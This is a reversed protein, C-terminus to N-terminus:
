LKNLSCPLKQTEKAGELPKENATVFSFPERANRTFSDSLLGKRVMNAKAGSDVLISISKRTGDSSIVSVEMLLQLHEGVKRVKNMQYSPIEHFFREAIQADVANNEPPTVQKWM